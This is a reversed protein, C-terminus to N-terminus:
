RPEPKVSPPPPTPVSSNPPEAAFRRTIARSIEGFTRAGYITNVDDRDGRTPQRPSIVVRGVKAALEKILTRDPKPTNADSM